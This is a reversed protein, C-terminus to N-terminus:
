WVSLVEEEERKNWEVQLSNAVCKRNSIWFSCLELTANSEDYTPLM